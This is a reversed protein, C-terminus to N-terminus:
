SNWVQDYFHKPNWLHLIIMEAFAKRAAELQLVNTLLGKKVTYTGDYALSKLKSASRGSRHPPFDPTKTERKNSVGGKGEELIERM